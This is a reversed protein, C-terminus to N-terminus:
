NRDENTRRGSVAEDRTKPVEVKPFVRSVMEPTMRSAAILKVTKKM